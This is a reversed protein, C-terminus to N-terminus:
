NTEELIEVIKELKSDKLVDIKEVIMLNKDRHEM